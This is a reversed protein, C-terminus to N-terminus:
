RTRQYVLLSADALAEHLRTDLRPDYTWLDLPLRMLTRLELRWAEQRSGSDGGGSHEVAVDLDSKPDQTGRIRSGFLWVRNVEPTREAWARLTEADQRLDPDLLHM